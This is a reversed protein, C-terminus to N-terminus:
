NNIKLKKQKQKFSVDINNCLMENNYMNFFLNILKEVTGNVMHIYEASEITKIVKKYAQIEKETTIM